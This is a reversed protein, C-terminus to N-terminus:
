ESNGQDDLDMLRVSEEVYGRYGPVSYGLMAHLAMRSRTRLVLSQWSSCGFSLQVFDESSSWPVRNFVHLM